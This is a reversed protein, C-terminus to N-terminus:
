CTVAKRMVSSWVFIVMHMNDHGELSSLARQAAAKTMLCLGEIMILSSTIDQLHSVAKAPPKVACAVM